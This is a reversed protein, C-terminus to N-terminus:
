DIFLAINNTSVQDYDFGRIKEKDEHSNVDAIHVLFGHDHLNTILSQSVVSVPVHAVNAQALAMTQVISHEGLERSMWSPYASFFLGIKATSEKERLRYLLASHPSTFEICSLVGHSQAMQIVKELFVISMGKLELEYSINTGFERFVQELTPIKEDSFDKSFWSGADLKQIDAFATKYILGRGNDPHGLEYDHHVVLIGDSTMQVDFEIAKAGLSVAKRFSALTNEPAIKSAGRHAIIKM